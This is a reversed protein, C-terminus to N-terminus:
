GIQDPNKLESMRQRTADPVFMDDAIAAIEEARRWEAELLRLEGEVQSQNPVKFLYNWRQYLGDLIVLFSSM